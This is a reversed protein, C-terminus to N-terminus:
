FGEPCYPARPTALATDLLAIAADEGTVLGAAALRALRTGGLFVAGLDAIDMTVQAPRDSRAARGGAGSLSFEWGGDNWPCFRDVIQVQVTANARYSRLPVAREVDVVRLWLHDQILHQAARRDLLLDQLVEDPGHRHHQVQRVMARDLAHRWLSATAIPTAACLEHVQLTHNPGTPAFDMALRFALVGDPHVAFRLSGAGGRRQSPLDHFLANWTTEDRSLYGTRHTRVREHVARLLPLATERDVERVPETRVGPRFALGHRVTTEAKAAAMGYGFRGYLGSESATLLAIAERGEDHLGHLQHRMLDTLLGRGQEGPQVGVWTVAAVPATRAGPLTLDKDLIAALSVLRDDEFAGIVRAGRLLPTALVDLDEPTPDYGFAAADLAIAAAFDPEALTRIM